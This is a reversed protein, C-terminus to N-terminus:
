LGTRGVPLRRILLRLDGRWRRNDLLRNSRRRRLAPPTAIGEIGGLVRVSGASRAREAAALERHWGFGRDASEAAASRSLREIEGIGAASEIRRRHRRRSRRAGREGGQRRRCARPIFEIESDAVHLALIIRQSFLRHAVERLFVGAIGHDRVRLIPQSLAIELALLIAIGRFSEESHGGFEVFRALRGVGQQPESLRQRSQFLLLRGARRKALHHPFIRAGGGADFRRDVTLLLPDLALTSELSSAAQDPLRMDEPKVGAHSCDQLSIMRVSLSCEGIEALAAFRRNASQFDAGAITRATDPPGSEIASIHSAARQRRAKARPGRRTAM